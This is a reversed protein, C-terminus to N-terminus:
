SVKRMIYLPIYKFNHDFTNCIKKNNETYKLLKFRLYRLNVLLSIVRKAFFSKMHVKRLENICQVACWDFEVSSGIRYVGSGIVMVHGGPFDLDHSSGNYTLYLYNTSAPWEAAVTDIQKIIPTIGYSQRLTRVALETSYLHVLFLLKMIGRDYRWTFSDWLVWALIKKHSIPALRPQRRATITDVHFDCSRGYFRTWLRIHVHDKKFHKQLIDVQNWLILYYLSM